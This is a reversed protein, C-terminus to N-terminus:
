VRRGQTQTLSIGYFLLCFFIMVFLGIHNQVTEPTFLFVILWRTGIIRFVFLCCFFIFVVLHTSPSPYNLSGPGLFHISSVSLFLSHHFHFCLMFQDLVRSFFLFAPPHLLFFSSFPPFFLQIFLWFSCLCFMSSMVPQERCIKMLSFLCFNTTNQLKKKGKLIPKWPLIKSPVRNDLPFLFLIFYLALTFLSFNIFKIWLLKKQRISHCAM